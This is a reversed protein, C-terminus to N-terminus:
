GCPTRMRNHNTVFIPRGQGDTGITHVTYTGKHRACGTRFRAVGWSGDARVRTEFIPNHTTGTWNLGVRTGPLFGVGDARWHMPRVNGSFAYCTFWTSFIAVSTPFRQTPSSTRVKYFGSPVNPQVYHGAVSGFRDTTVVKATVTDGTGSLLFVRIHERAPYGTLDFAATYSGRSQLRQQACVRDFPALQTDGQRLRERITFTVAASRRGTADVASVLHAGGPNRPVTFAVRFTGSRTTTTSAVKVVGRVRDQFRVSVKRRHAFGHGHVTVKAGVPGVSRSLSISPHHASASAPSALAPALCTGLLAIALLSRLRVM